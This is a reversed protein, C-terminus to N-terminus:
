GGVEKLKLAQYHGNPLRIVDYKGASYDLKFQYYENSFRLHPPPIVFDGNSMQQPHNKHTMQLPSRARKADRIMQRHIEDAEAPTLGTLKGRDKDNSKSAASANVSTTAGCPLPEAQSQRCREEQERQREEERLKREEQSRAIEERQKAQQLEMQQLQLEKEKLALREREQKLRADELMERKSPPLDYFSDCMYRDLEAMLEEDTYDRDPRPSTAGSEFDFEMRTNEAKLALELLKASPLPTKNVEETRDPKGDTRVIKHSKQEQMTVEYGDLSLTFLRELRMRHNYESVGRRQRWSVQKDHGNTLELWREYRDRIASIRSHALGYEKAVDRLSRRAIAVAQYIERDRRSPPKMKFPDSLTLKIYLERADKQTSTTTTKTAM